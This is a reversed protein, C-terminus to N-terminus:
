LEGTYNLSVCAKYPRWMDPMYMYGRVGTYGIFERAKRFAQKMDRAEIDFRQIWSYNCDGGFTDTFEFSYKRNM